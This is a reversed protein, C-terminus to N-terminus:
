SRLKDASKPRARARSIRPASRSSKTIIAIDAVSSAAGTAARIPSAGRMVDSPRVKATSVRQSARLGSALRRKGAIIAPSTACATCSVVPPTSTNRGPSPSIRWTSARSKPLTAPQSIRGSNPAISNAAWRAARAELWFRLITSAVDIASVESVMGSIRTTISPPRARRARNSGAEPM